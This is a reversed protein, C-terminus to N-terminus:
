LVSQRLAAHLPCAPYLVLGPDPRYGSIFDAPFNEEFMEKNEFPYHWQCLAHGSDFWCDAVEPIRHMEKGCDPCTLTVRDIYPRHLDMGPTVGHGLEELEKRSGVVHTHGCECVWVPLPTGWYRERSIAWDVVNDIFNGMRGEKITEPIWNVSRNSAQLAEKVQTM